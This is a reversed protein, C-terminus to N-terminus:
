TIWWQTSDCQFRICTNQSGITMSTVNDINTAGGTVTVIVPNASSDKKKIYVVEGANPGSPAFLTMTRAGGSADVIFTQLIGASITTNTSVSTITGVGTTGSNAIANVTTKKIANGAVDWLIVEDGSAPSSKLTLGDITFDQANAPSATTNGKITFAAMQAAKANTVVNAPLTPNPYTGTLDGGAATTSTVVTSSTSPFTFTTGDTGNFNLTNNSSLTKGDAITLTAGTVPPTFSYKNISSATAVGLLPTTLSPSSALVVAGSGTTSNSLDVAALQAVTFPGGPSTQKVVNSPGGTSSFDISGAPLKLNGSAINAASINLTGSTSGNLQLTSLPLTANVAINTPNSGTLLIGNGATLPVAAPTQWSVDFNTSSNKELVQGATGGAPLPSVTIGNGPVDIVRLPEFHSVPLPLNIIRNSNMDLQALMQNPLTGDRSLTNDMAITIANNNNNIANVATTENQLNVLNTLVVKDTM